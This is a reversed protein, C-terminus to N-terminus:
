DLASYQVTCTVYLRPDGMDVTLENTRVDGKYKWGM